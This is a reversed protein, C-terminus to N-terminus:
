EEEETNLNPTKPELPTLTNNEINDNNEKRRKRKRKKKIQTYSTDTKGLLTDSNIQNTYNITANKDSQSKSNSLMLSDQTKVTTKNNSISDKKNLNFSDIVPQFSTNNNKQETKDAPSLNVVLYILGFVLAVIGLIFIFTKNRLIQIGSINIKKSYIKFHHFDHILREKQENSYNIKYDTFIKRIHEELQKDQNIDSM